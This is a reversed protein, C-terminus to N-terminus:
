NPPFLLLMQVTFCVPFNLGARKLGAQRKKNQDGDLRLYDGHNPMVKM